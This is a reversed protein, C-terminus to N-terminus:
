RSQGSFSEPRVLRAFRAGTSIKKDSAVTNSTVHEDHSISSVKPDVSRKRVVTLNKTTQYCTDGNDYGSPTRLFDNSFDTSEDASQHDGSDTTESM